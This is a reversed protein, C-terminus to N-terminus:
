APYIIGQRQLSRAFLNYWTRCYVAMSFPKLMAGDKPDSWKMYMENHFFIKLYNFNLCHFRPRNSAYALGTAPDLAATDLTSIYKIPIGSYTPSNYAPDQASVLRDNSARLFRKYMRHGDRNTVFKLRRLKDDEFYQSANEPAEFRLRLWMEDFAAFLGTADNGPDIGTYSVQQPRWRSETAPNVGQKTTYGSWLGNTAENVLSPISAAPPDEGTQAEMTTANPVAWLADEMGNWMDTRAAQEKATKTRTYRDKANAGANLMEVEDSYGYNTVGFAWPRSIESLTDADTPNLTAHPSYFRFTGTTSLQIHDIISKGGQVTEAADTGRVMDSILYTNKVAENLIDTDSTLKTSKTALIFDTFTPLGAM